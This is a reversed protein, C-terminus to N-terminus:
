RRRRAALSAGILGLGLLMMSTPEPVQHTELSMLGTQRAGTEDSSFAAKISQGELDFTVPAAYNLTFTWTYTAGTGTPLATGTFAGGDWTSACAFSDSGNTCGNANLMNNFFTWSGPGAVDGSIIHAPTGRFGIGFLYADNGGEGGTFNTFDATYQVVFTKSDESASLLEVTFLGGSYEV